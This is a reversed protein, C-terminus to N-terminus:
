EKSTTSRMTTPDHEPFFEEDDTVIVARGDRHEIRPTVKPVRDRGEAFATVAAVTTHPMLSELTKITPFIMDLEGRAHAELADVPRVWTDAITEGEDCAAIQGHPAETVFFRTDYRRPPGVPTVWHALYAMGSLDLVLDEAELIALMTTERANLARRHEALRRRLADDRTDVLGGSAHHAVLLGAEEFMERLAAVYYSLADTELALRTRATEEDLGKSRERWQALRDDADVGGGPFVYAGGVFDSNLNRRLMLVEVGGPGDRLTLITAAPKPEGVTDM